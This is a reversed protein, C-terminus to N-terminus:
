RSKLPNKLAHGLSARHRAVFRYARETIGPAADLVRAPVRGGPLLRLLQPAAAGASWREGDPSVLHWSDMREEESLEALIDAARASQLAVPELRGRRDWRLLWGLSTRCFGCEGDYLVLWGSNTGIRDV